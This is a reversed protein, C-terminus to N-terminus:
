PERQSECGRKRQWKGEGGDFFRGSEEEVIDPVGLPVSAPEGLKNTGGGYEETHNRGDHARDQAEASSPSGNSNRKPPKTDHNEEAPNLAYTVRQESGQGIAESIQASGRKERRM